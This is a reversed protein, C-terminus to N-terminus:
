EAVEIEKGKKINDKPFYIKYSLLICFTGTLVNRQNEKGKKLDGKGRKEGERWDQLAM